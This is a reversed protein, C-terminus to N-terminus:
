LAPSGFDEPRIRKLKAKLKDVEQPEEAGEARKGMVREAVFIPAGMKLALAISDSPRADVKLVVSDAELLLEAYYIREVLKAVTVKTVRAGLQQLIHSTLDHTLPREPKVGALEYAIAHAETPGIWIPLCRDGDLENLLVVYAGHEPEVFPGSVTVQIM